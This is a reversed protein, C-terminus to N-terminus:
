GTQGSSSITSRRLYTYYLRLGSVLQSRRWMARSSGPAYICMRRGQTPILAKVSVCLCWRHRLCALECEMADNYTVFFEVDPLELLGVSDLARFIKGDGAGCIVLVVNLGSLLRQMRVFAEAASLDVGLVLTFDLALFRIPAHIWASETVLSRITEEVRTITGFFLFGQLQLVTTQQSVERLYARHASPRRVTSLTMEGTHIVRISRRQSNQVVFFLGSQHTPTLMLELFSRHPHECSIVIGFLVGVVFDWTTMAVMISAITIYEPKSVRHRTDWLAEKVLDIGLVFILASIVMVATASRTLVIGYAVSSFERIYAIPGTGAFLVALTAGALM